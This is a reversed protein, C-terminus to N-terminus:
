LLALTAWAVAAGVALCGAAMAALDGAFWGGIAAGIAVKSVTDSAVAALIAVAAQARTLTDPTLRLMSVTVADVDALGVVVAGAVAGTAGFTEGVARGLVIIVGLFLAFGVVSLFDFPNRFEISRYDKPGAGGWLIWALAFGLAVLAAAMLAPAVLVLVAPNLAVVIAVVRLFMVGSAIAVGSALLRPAGEGTAARRANAITVATSSALGGAAAALILGRRAGFCKVAVYGLFSVGALVIAILWVERLNVGGFPGIPEGPMIPLVIFTMALLVLGSRLEPWTIKEVWGHLEDRSALLGAAAVAAGAAIRMDGIVAYAGLAFTLMGAIATTASFAGISVNEERSFLTIVVGYTAFAVGLLLAGGVTAAGGALQALVAILGGLLGSIAFTRIGAARSGPRAGRRRWGRELGILLGIGLALALRSLLDPLDM